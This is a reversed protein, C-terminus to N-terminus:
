MIQIDTGLLDNNGRLSMQIFEMGLLSKYDMAEFNRLQNINVKSFHFMYHYLPGFFNGRM